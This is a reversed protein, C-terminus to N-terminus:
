VWTIAGPVSLETAARTVNAAPSVLVHDTEGAAVSIAERLHSLLITGGPAAERLVLDRFEAEVAARVAADPPQIGSITLNLPVAIPAAVLVDACVPRRADIYSQVVAVDAPVPIGQGAARVDDMAFLVTVTGPGSALPLCWARTVGAVELAWTVYDSRNGGHPPQRIRDQIRRRYDEDAEADAGGVLGASVVTPAGTIGAIPSVLALPASGVTNGAAGAAEAEVDVIATGAAIVGATTTVFRAGDARRLLTGAAIEAGASGAFTVLGTAYAAAKRYVGWTAGRRDLNEAESTEVLVQDAIWAQHGYLGHVAGAIVRSLTGLVSNRTRADAGELRAEIDAETTAVLEALTPRVFAM